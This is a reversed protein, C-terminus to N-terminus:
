LVVNNNKVNWSLVNIEAKIFNDNFDDPDPIIPPEPNSPDKKFVDGNVPAGLTTIAKITMKYYHNRVVGYVTKGEEVDHQIAANFYANGEAYHYNRANTCKSFDDEETIEKAEESTVNYLKDSGDAKVILQYKGEENYELDFWETYDNTANEATPLTTMVQGDEGVRLKEVGNWHLLYGILQNSSYITYVDKGGKEKSDSGSLLLYFDYVNEENVQDAKKFWDSHTGEVDYHGVVLAYTTAIINQKLEGEGLATTHERVYEPQDDGYKNMTSTYGDKFPIYDLVGTVKSNNYYYSFNGNDKAYHVGEAWFSRHNSPSNWTKHSGFPTKVLYERQAKGTAGWKDFKFVLKAEEGAVDEVRYNLNDQSVSSADVTVKAALREVYINVVTAKAAAEETNEHYINAESVPVAVVFKSDADYYGANTMAFGNQTLDETELGAELADLNNGKLETNIFAVVQAPKSGEKLNLKFVQTLYNSVNDEDGDDEKPVAPTALGETAIEGNGVYEGSAEYFALHIANIKQEPETGVSADLDSGARTGVSKPMTIAVKAYATTKDAVGPKEIDNVSCSALSFIMAAAAIM